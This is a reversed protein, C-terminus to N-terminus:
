SIPLLQHFNDLFTARLYRLDVRPIDVSAAGKIENETKVVFFSNSERDNQNVFQPFILVYARYVRGLLKRKSWRLGNAIWSNRLFQYGM